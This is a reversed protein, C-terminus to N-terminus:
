KKGGEIGNLIFFSAISGLTIKFSEERSEKHYKRVARMAKDSIKILNQPNTKVMSYM